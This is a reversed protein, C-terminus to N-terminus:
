FSEKVTDADSVIQPKITMDPPVGLVRLTQQVVDSFVPAAVLGGFYQGDGPEDIMVGVAIRTDDIPAIGTFWARYKNGSYGKGVQKHATGTKGGVTYGITQARQATGGPQTVMHLMTRIEAATQPSFVRQGDVPAGSASKLLTARIVEGDHAFATYSHAMEFLSASLGYGYAMTAQEVPKWNKWPRVFGTAAGPFDLDPRQGYGLLHYVNWLEQPKLRQSIKLAGINSSKQIVGQVTLVGYDSDDHITFRGIQYRGPRTDIKTFPTVRGLELATGITIPKMTSGPEFTDTLTINRLPAGTLNKRNNPDYSPYNAMALVEGTRTDIVVVSGSKAKHTVVADRVKQYAFFQIKSDISLYLDQGDVPPAEDGVVDVVHGFRDKIVHRSGNKGSLRQDFALEAGEQGHDDVGTFGVVQAVAEGEPYERKYEKRQYVGPIKLAEIQKAVAEDVQRKIWVFSKEEHSSLKQQLQALPMNLLRALQQLQAPTAGGTVDEPIAWISPTVVSSALLLGNRDYIRGRSAPLALTREFRVEGQRQFFANDLVQVYVARATLGLFALALGAVIFKSRWVPTKATLLPSPVFRLGHQNM